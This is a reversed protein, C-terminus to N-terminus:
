FWFGIGMNFQKQYQKSDQPQAWTIDAKIAVGPALSYGAGATIEKVDYADNKPTSSEVKHHLNYREYRVFPTLNQEENGARIDWAGELYWGLTQSGLDQGTFQNYAKTDSINDLIVQGRSHFNGKSFRYDLGFMQIGVRSSDAREVADKDSTDLHNYLTSQTKGMFTAAGIQLGSIGFYNIKFAVNPSSIISEAGKQRGKRIGKSGGLLGKEDYSKLGNVLLAEYSLPINTLRGNIGLGIERWTTPVVRSDVSPREVGNFTTPEHNQNIIGMPILLLGGTLNFGPSIRHEIFAQEIYVESVHEYEIETVFSTKPSFSYGLFVVLRQVDLNGNQRYGNDFPQNYNIQGYGGLVLKQSSLEKLIKGSGNVELTDQAKIAITSLIILAAITFSRRM